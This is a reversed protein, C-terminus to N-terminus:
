MSKREEDHEMDVSNFEFYYNEQNDKFFDSLLDEVSHKDDKLYNRIDGSGLVTTIAGNSTGFKIEIIDSQNNENWNKVRNYLGCFEQVSLGEKRNAYGEFQANFETIKSKRINNTTEASTSGIYAITYVLLSLLIIGFLFAM